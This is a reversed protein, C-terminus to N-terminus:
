NGGESEVNDMRRSTEEMLKRQNEQEVLNAEQTQENNVIDQKAKQIKSEWMEINRHLEDNDKALKKQKAELDKMQNQQAKLENSISARRIDFYLTRLARNMEETRSRNDRRNLFYSGADVWVTLATGDNTKEITSYLAFEDDGMLSAHLKVAMWEGKSKKLKANFNDKAFRKWVDEVIAADTNAFEMRFGPRSGFSMMRETERVPTFQAALKSVLMAAFFLFVLSKRNM